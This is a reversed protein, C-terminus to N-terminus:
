KNLALLFHELIYYYEELSKIDVWENEAHQNKGVVGFEIGACGVENYFRIDSTAHASFIEGPKKTVAEIQELLLQLYVNKEDTFMPPDFTEISMTINKPLLSKIDEIITAQDEKLYRIDIFATAEDPVKNFVPNPTEIKALNMTTIWAPKKPHPYKASLQNIVEILSTLANKGNWLHGGHSTLGKAHLRFWFLGKAQHNIRFNSGCEGSIVFDCRIGEQLQQKTTLFGAEEDTIIQLGFPYNVKKALAKFLLIMVATAAKMDYAGRGYLRGEKEFPSFQEEIGPVVDIHANFLIKFKKVDPKQNSFLLSTHQNAIFSTPKYEPLQQKILTLAEDLKETDSSISPITILSKTLKLIKDTM